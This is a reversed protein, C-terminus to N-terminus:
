YVRVFRTDVHGYEDYVILENGSVEYGMEIEKVYVPINSSTVHLNLMSNDKTKWTGKVWEESEDDEEYNMTFKGNKELLLTSSDDYKEQWLGVLAPDHDAENAPSDNDSCASMGLTMVVAMLLLGVM